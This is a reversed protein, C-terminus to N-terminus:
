GGRVLWVYHVTIKTDGTVAGDNIDVCWAKSTDSLYTSSSWYMLSQVSTFTNGPLAPNSHSLDVLSELETVNPLRWDTYGLYTALNAAVVADLAAQWALPGRGADPEWFLGTLNDTITTGDITFRTGPWAMGKRLKGDQGNAPDTACVIPNGSADWCAAQGTQPLHITAAHAALPWLLLCIFIASRKLM